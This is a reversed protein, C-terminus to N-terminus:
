FDIKHDVSQGLAVVRRAGLATPLVGPLDRSGEV